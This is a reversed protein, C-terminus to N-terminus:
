ATTARLGPRRGVGTYLIYLEREQLDKYADKKGPM